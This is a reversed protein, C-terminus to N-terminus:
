GAEGEDLPRQCGGVRGLSSRPGQFLGLRRAEWLDAVARLICAYYLGAGGLWAPWQRCPSTLNPPLTSTEQWGRQAGVENRDEM